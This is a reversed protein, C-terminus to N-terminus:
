SNKRNPLGPIEDMAALRKVLDVACRVGMKEFIRARHVEVTRVAIALDDAIVKNPKGEVLLQMVFEHALAVSECIEDTVTHRGNDNCRPFTLEVALRQCVPELAPDICEVNFLSYAIMEVTCDLQLTDAAM